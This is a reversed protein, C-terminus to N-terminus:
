HKDRKITKTIIVEGNKKEIKLSHVKDKTQNNLNDPNNNPIQFSTELQRNSIVNENNMKNETLLHQINFSQSTGFKQGMINYLQKQENIIFTKKSKFYYKACFLIMVFAFVGELPYFINVINSFGFRSFIFGVSLVICACLFKNKIFNQLWTQISYGAVCITTFIALWMVLSYAYGFFNNVKFAISIMPMDSTFVLNGSCLITILIILIFFLLICSTILCAKGIQKKSLYSSSKSIIFINTFINMSVYLISYIFSSLINFNFNSKDVVAVNNTSWFIALIVVIFGLIVPLVFNNIKYIYKLGTSIIIAVVIATFISIYCFNYSDGFTLVGISDCGALMSSLTIMSCLIFCFDVFIHAEGFISKTLDSISNPRVMKGIKSFLYFCCFFLIAVLLIFPIAWFGLNGFFSVIEKGSAFGAGVIASFTAMIFTFVFSKKM